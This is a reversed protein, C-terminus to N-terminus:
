TNSLTINLPSHENGLIFAISQTAVMMMGIKILTLHLNVVLRKTFHPLCKEYFLIITVTGENWFNKITHPFALIQHPSM